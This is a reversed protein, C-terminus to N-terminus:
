GLPTLTVPGTDAAGVRKASVQTQGTAVKYTAVGAPFVASAATATGNANIYLPIVSALEYFITGAPISLTVATDNVVNVSQTDGHIPAFVPVPNGLKDKLLRPELKSTTM